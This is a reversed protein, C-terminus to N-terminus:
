CAGFVEQNIANRANVRVDEGSSETLHAEAVADHELEHYEM